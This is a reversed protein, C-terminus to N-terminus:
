SINGDEFYAPFLHQLFLLAPPVDDKTKPLTQALRHAMMLLDSQTELNAMQFIPLGSQKTGLVDGPGRLQLDAEAIQFGDKTECMLQLRKKGVASLAKGYLLVCSSQQDGRGVRGRLQHLQALGFREAHEILMITADKVDVGVEIVTTSVLIKHMGSMFDAMVHAKEDAKMRGHLLGVQGSFEKQLSEYRAQAHGLDLAESEEILPCVWYAKEGRGLATKLHMYLDQIKNLSLVSTKVPRRGQPKETLHCSELDGFATLALSRPIPTASMVLLNVGEGKQILSQRQKVGFRHQEDIVVLGLNQFQVDGEMLAHTGLILHIAGESLKQKLARKESAPTKGTLLAWTVPLDKLFTGFTRDHQEALIETPALFAVQGGGEIVQLAALLAVITKGSGVDGQLLRMMAHRRALEGSILQLVEQQGETLSFPLHKKCLPQLVESAKFQKGPRARVTDRLVTLMLQHALLEDFALRARMANDDDLDDESQPQHVQTLAQKWSAWNRAACFDTPLWEPLNPAKKLAQQVLKRYHTQSLGATLGYLPVAGIWSEREYPNGMFDPHVMQYTGYQHNLTGSILRTAGVPLHQQIYPVRAHFFLLTLTETGAACVVKFPHHRRHPPQYERVMVTCTIKQGDLAPTPGEVLYRHECKQPFRQLLHWVRTIGMKHLRDKTKPGVGPLSTICSFLPSLEIPRM